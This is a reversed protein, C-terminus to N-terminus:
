KAPRTEDGPPSKGESARECEAILADWDSPPAGRELMRHFVAYPDSNSGAKRLTNEDNLWAFIITRSATHFRFFLRFRRHFKVRRWHTHSAGLTKGQRYQPHDPNAPVEKFVIDRVTHFFKVMPDHVSGDPDADRAEGAAHVLADWRERFASWFLLRWGNVEIPKAPTGAGAVAPTQRKGGGGGTGRPKRRKPM